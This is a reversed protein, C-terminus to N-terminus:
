SLVLLRWAGQDSLSLAPPKTRLLIRQWKLAEFSEWIWVKEFIFSCKSLINLGPELIRDSHYWVRYTKSGIQSVQHKKVELDAIRLGRPGWFRLIEFGQRVEDATAESKKWGSILIKAGYPSYNHLHVRFKRHRDTTDREKGRPGIENESSKM